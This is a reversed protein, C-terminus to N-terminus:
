RGPGGAVGEHRASDTHRDRDPAADPEAGDRLRKMELVAQDFSALAADIIQRARRLVEEVHRPNPDGKALWQVIRDRRKGLLDASSCKKALFTEWSEERKEDGNCRGCALVHSYISNRGGLAAPVAHDLHGQRSHREMAVGCYACSSEFHEWLRRVDEPGPHPDLIAGLCRKIKNKAM